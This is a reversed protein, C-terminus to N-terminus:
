ISNPLFIFNNIYMEKNKINTIEQYILTDQKLKILDFTERDLYYPTYNLNIIPQIINWLKDKHHREEVEILLIPRFKRITNAGGKIVNIEAGEVDIKILSIKSIQKEAVFWDLTNAQVDYMKNSTEDEEIYDIKLTGRGTSERNGVMPVKFKLIGQTDTLAINYVNINPFLYKIRKYLAPQPEFGYINKDTIFKEAFYLYSGMNVGVDLFISDQQLYKTLLLFEFEVNRKRINYQNLNNLKKFFRKKYLAPWYKYAWKIATNRFSNM